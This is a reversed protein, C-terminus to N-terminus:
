ITHVEEQHPANWRGWTDRQRSEREAKLNSARKEHSLGLTVVDGPASQRGHGSKLSENGDESFTTTGDVLLALAIIVKGRRNRDARKRM